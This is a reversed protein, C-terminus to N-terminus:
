SFDPAGEVGWESFDQHMVTQGIAEAISWVPADDGFAEDAGTFISIKYFLGDLGTLAIGYLESSASPKTNRYLLIESDGDMRTSIEATREQEIMEKVAQADEICDAHAVVVEDSISPDFTERLKDAMGKLSKKRGRTKHVVDVAGNEDIRMVPKLKLLNAALAGTRALRGGGLVYRLDDVTIWHAAKMRNDEIWSVVDDLKAGARKMLAAQKVLLGQGFSAAITEVCVIRRQPYEEQLRECIHHVSDYTGSLASSFGLYLLDKGQELLEVLTERTEKPNPLSTRVSSGNRMSQYFGKLVVPRDKFFGPHEVEDVYYNLPLVALGLENCLTHSLSCASDTVLAYTM